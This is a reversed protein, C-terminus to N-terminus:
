SPTVRSMREGENKVVPKHNVIYTHTQPWITLHQAAILEPLHLPKYNKLKHLPNFDFFNVIVGCHSLMKVAFMPCPFFGISAHLVKPYNVQCKMHICSSALQIATIHVHVVVYM